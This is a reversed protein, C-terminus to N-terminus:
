KGQVSRVELALQRIAEQLTIGNVKAHLNIVDGKIGCAHCGWLGRLSDVWFSPTKDDHFPCTARWWRGQNHDSTKLQTLRSAYDFISIARKIDSVLDNGASMAPGAAAPGAAAPQDAAKEKSLLLSFADLGIEKIPYDGVVSYIFGPLKSPASVVVRKFEVGPVPKLGTLDFALTYFVHWGRPSIEQYTTALDSPISDQWQTFLQPDDFDLCIYSVPLYVALNYVKGGGWWAACDDLMTVKQRYPGFGSVLHKTDPKVPLLGAGVSLWFRAQDLHTLM